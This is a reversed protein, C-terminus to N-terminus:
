PPQIQDPSTCDRQAVRSAWTGTPTFVDSLRVGNQPVSMPPNTGVRSSVPSSYVRQNWNAANLGSNRECPRVHFSRRGHPQFVPSNPGTSALLPGSLDSSLFAAM